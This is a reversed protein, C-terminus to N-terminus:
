EIGLYKEIEGLAEGAKKWMEALKPDAIEEARICCSVAYGLGEIEIENKVDDNSLKEKAPM